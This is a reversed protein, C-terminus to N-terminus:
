TPAPRWTPAFRARPVRFQTGIRNRGLLGAQSRFRRVGAPSVGVESLTPSFARLDGIVDGAGNSNNHFVRGLSDVAVLSSTFGHAALVPTASEALLVGTQQDRIQLHGLPSLLAVGTRIDLCHVRADVAPPEYPAWAYTHRVTFM